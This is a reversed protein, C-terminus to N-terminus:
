IDLVITGDPEKARSCCFIVYSARQSKSLVYDRHEIEGDLYPAKCVGCLGDSCKVDINVGADKLAVAASKDDPVLLKLGSRKLQLTFPHNVYQAGEPVSFYERHLADEHWGNELAAAYVADMFEAPGCTYLHDGAKYGGLVDAVHLRDEDSFRFHVRDTWPVAQLEPIFAAQARTRAKYYLVFDAGARSLEHGMAILPTVGIGGAMLIHRRGNKVVPFHNRPQSVVVPVGPKLMQHIKISGGRGQDERLIGVLYKSRDAPDGALSFQRIFEPTVTIDIHAGGEFSPLPKGDRSVIEFLDIKGDASSQWRKGIKAVIVPPPGEIPRVGPVLDKTDGAAIRELHQAPSLLAKYAAIGAERDVPFPAPLPPPVLPAPYAALTQDEYKLQLHKNLERVNTEKAKVM